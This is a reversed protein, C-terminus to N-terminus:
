WDSQLVELREGGAVGWRGLGVALCLDSFYAWHALVPSMIVLGVVTFTCSRVLRALLLGQGCKPWVKRVHQMSGCCEHCVHYSFVM